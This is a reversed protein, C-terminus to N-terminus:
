QTGWILAQDGGLKSYNLPRYKAALKEMVPRDSGTDFALYPELWALHFGEIQDSGDFFTQVKGTIAETAAGSDLDAVAFGVVRALAGDCLDQAPIGARELLLTTVVLPAVAHLQYKLAYKGRAMEQPLSGDDDASCLVYSVSFQAWARLVPDDLIDAAAAASLAAWARLNGKRSKDPAGTEWFETQHAQLTALWSKILTVDEVRTTHPLVQLLVLGFGAFRSGMTLNSAPSKLDSLAGAEAWVAIQSIVCDAIAAQDAGPKLGNNAMSTMDRLFDDVPALAKNVETDAKADLESRSTSDAQYRSDYELSVVPDAPQPCTQAWLAAPALAMMTALTLSLIKM